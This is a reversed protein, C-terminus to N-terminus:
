VRTFRRAVIEQTLEGNMKPPHTRQGSISSVAACVVGNWEFAEVSFDAM